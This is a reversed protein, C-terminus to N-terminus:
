FEEWHEDQASHHALAGQSSVPRAASDRKSAPSKSQSSPALRAVNRRAVVAPRAGPLAISQAHNLKFVSVAEALLQAQEELSEAAASAEEVLAANQQTVEDMQIIAQNIQGIGASQEASAASIEGMIDTVRKISSEIESMTSGAEAVLKAGGEVKSVSDGILNKIEKAALASRQALNRVEAAVVAFGRGQEGARAAEVAANLALINTQFAIGDIVSIIDVIKRSSDNISSMTEVVKSVVEGGKTAVDSSTRALQSAVIANEANQKVTSTLEEMSSATEELSAAQAETRRSLDSNGLSIEKAAANISAGSAQIESVLRQLNEVTANVGQKTEGFLGPYDKNITQTLDGAALANAIRMVDRLGTDTVESLQNLLESLRRTYGQKDSLDIKRSFDGQMAAAEVVQEIQAVVKRLAEVTANVGHRTEGFLGPYEKTISQSLDGAALANSVRLVDNFGLDCTSILQNLDDIMAKFMFQYKNADARPSFDGRSGSEALLKVDSSIALLSAKVQDIAATIQAKDGPLRDMDPQFNGRAYEGIIQVVKMKVAIHANVLKNIQEAMMAFQGNFKGADMQVKIWGQEHQDAMLQQEVIFARITDQMQKMAYMVSAKDHEQLSIQNDVRGNAVALAVAAAQAPEGGLQKMLARVILWAVLVSLLVAVLGLAMIQWKAAEGVKETEEGATNMAKSQFSILEHLAEVYAKFSTALDATIFAGAQEKEGAKIMELYRELNKVYAARIELVSAIMAKEQENSANKELEAYGASLKARYQTVNDLQQQVDRENGMILMNRNSIAVQSLTNILEYTAVVKPYREHVLKDVTTNLTNLRNISMLGILLLLVIVVGFGLGLQTSVKMSRTGSM